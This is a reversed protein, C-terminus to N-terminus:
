RRGTSLRVPSITMAIQLQTRGTVDTMSRASFKRPARMLRSDNPSVVAVAPQTISPVKTTGVALTDGIPDPVPFLPADSRRYGEADRLPSEETVTVPQSPLVQETLPDVLRRRPIM